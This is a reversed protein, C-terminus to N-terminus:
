NINYKRKVDKIVEEEALDVGMQSGFIQYGYKRSYIRDILMKLPTEKLDQNQVATYVIPLYKEQMDINAHQIILWMVHEFKEGVTSRGIYKGFQNYLSDIITQNKIDLPTQLEPIFENKRYKQDHKDLLYMIEVLDRDYKEGSLYEDINFSEVKLKEKNYIHQFKSHLSDFEHQTLQFHEPSKVAMIFVTATSKLDKEQALNLEKMINEKPERLLSFATAINFHDAYVINSSDKKISAYTQELIYNAKRFKEDSVDSKQVPFYDIRTYYDQGNTSLCIIFFMFFLLWFRFIKLIM